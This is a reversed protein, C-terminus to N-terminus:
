LLIEIENQVEAEERDKVRIYIAVAVDGQIFLSINIHRAYTDLKVMHERFTITRTMQHDSSQYWSSEERVQSSDIVFLEGSSPSLVLSPFSFEEEIPSNDEHHLSIYDEHRGIEYLWRGSKVSITEETRRCSYRSLTDLLTLTNSLISISVTSGVSDPGGSLLGQLINDTCFIYARHTSGKSVYGGERDCSSDRYSEGSSIDDETFGRLPSEKFTSFTNERDTGERYQAQIKYGFSSGGDCDYTDIWTHRYIHVDTLLVRKGQTNHIADEKSILSERVITLDQNEIISFDM